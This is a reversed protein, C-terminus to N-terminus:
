IEFIEINKYFRQAALHTSSHRSSNVSITNAESDATTTQKLKFQLKKYVVPLLEIQDGTEREILKYKKM